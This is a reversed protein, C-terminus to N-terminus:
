QVLHPGVGPGELRRLRAACVVGDTSARASSNSTEPPQASRRDGCAPRGRRRNGDVAGRSSNCSRCAPVLVGVWLAPDPVTCLAPVHDVTDAPKGCWHCSRGRLELSARRYSRRNRPSTM